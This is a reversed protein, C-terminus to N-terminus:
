FPVEAHTSVSTTVHPAGTAESDPGLDSVDETVDIEQFVSVDVAARVTYSVRARDDDMNATSRESMVLKLAELQELFRKVTSWPIDTRRHIESVHARPHQSLDELIELRGPPVSDRACRAALNMADVMSLGIATAGRILQTLQKGVRTPMEPAHAIVADGRYDTEVATRVLALLDSMKLLRTEDAPSLDVDHTPDVTEMLAGVAAALEERMQREHGTNRRAQRFAAERGHRSDVRVILFRDGMSAIVEHARDWQSTCAGIVAVRGEWTISRGGDTGIERVWKGDHVERLAAIVGSRANRDMSLISTFDKVILLGRPGIRRLLGGTADRAATRQSTGSLLAGVSSIMSVVHGGSGELSQVTETKAAGSGSLLILWLPDGDLKEAAAAALVANLPVTDYEDGLWRHFVGHVDLLGARPPWTPAADLLARLAAPTNEAHALWDSLDQKASLGPLDLWHVALGAAVCTEGVTKMHDRGPGDNDPLLVADRVGAAVLQAAYDAHWKGAGAANTTAPLGLAWAAEVDKEGEVILVRAPRLATLDALRYIVKRVPGLNNLWGGQSDPRRQYFRKPDLRVSQYLLVGTEDDYDYTAVITSPARPRPGNRSQDGLVDRWTLGVAALIGTNDCRAFCKVLPGQRGDAVRMSRRGATAGDAHSPCFVWWGDRRREPERFRAALQEATM